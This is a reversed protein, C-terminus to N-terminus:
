SFCVEPLFHPVGYHSDRCVEVVVLARCRHNGALNCPEVDHPNDVLGRCSSDRIAQLSPFDRPLALGFRQDVVESAPGKVHRDEADGVAHELGQGGAPVRM